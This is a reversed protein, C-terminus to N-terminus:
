SQNVTSYQFIYTNKLNLYFNEYRIKILLSWTKTEQLSSLAGEPLSTSSSWFLTYVFILRSHIM